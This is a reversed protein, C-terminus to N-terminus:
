RLHRRAHLGVLSVVAVVAVSAAARARGRDAAAEAAQRAPRLTGGPRGRHEGSGDARRRGLTGLRLRGAVAAPQGRGPRRPAPRAAPDPQHTAGAAARVALLAAAVVVLAVLRLVVPVENRLCRQRRHHHVQHDAQQGMELDLRRRLRVGQRGPGALRGSLAGRRPDHLHPVLHVVLALLLSPHSGADAAIRAQGAVAPRLRQRQHDAPRGARRRVCRPSRRDRAARGSARFADAARHRAGQRRAEGDAVGAPPRRCARAGEGATRAQFGRHGVCGVPRRAQVRRDRGEPGNVTEQPQATGRVPLRRAVARPRPRPSM